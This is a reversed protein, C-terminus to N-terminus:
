WSPSRSHGAASGLHRCELPQQALISLDSCGPIVVGHGAVLRPSCVCSNAVRGVTPPRHRFVCLTRCSSATVTYITGIFLTGEGVPETGRNFGRTELEAGKTGKNQPVAERALGGAEVCTHEVIPKNLTSSPM